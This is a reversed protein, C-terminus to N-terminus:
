SRDSQALKREMRKFLQSLGAVLIFYIIAVSILPFFANYTVGTILNSAKTLDTVPIYGVISTEKLIAIFENGLAPLCNKIAQPIIINKMTQSKSLGLSRGAEMQGKDVALIGGRFIESVYASSNLGFAIIAIIVAYDKFSVLVIYYMILIQLVIPTGRIIAVYSTLIANIISKFPNKKNSQAYSVRYIAILIGIIVGIIIACISILLTNGFGELFVKYRNDKIFTLYFQNSFNNFFDM